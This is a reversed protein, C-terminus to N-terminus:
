TDPHKILITKKLNQVTKCYHNEAVTETQGLFPSPSHGTCGLIGDVDVRHVTPLTKGMWWKDWVKGWAIGV